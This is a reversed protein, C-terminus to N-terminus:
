LMEKALNTPMQYMGNSEAWIREGDLGFRLYTGELGYGDNVPGWFHPKEANAWVGNPIYLLGDNLRHFKPQLEHLVAQVASLNFNKWYTQMYQDLMATSRPDAKCHIIFVEETKVRGLMIDKVCFSLSLGILKKLMETM